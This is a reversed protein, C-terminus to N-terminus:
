KQNRRRAADQKIFQRAQKQNGSQMVKRCHADIDDIPPDSPTLARVIGYIAWVILILVVVLLSM